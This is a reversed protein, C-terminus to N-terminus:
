SVDYVGLAALTIVSSIDSDVKWQKKKSCASDVQVEREVEGLATSMDSRSGRAVTLGAYRRFPDSWDHPGQRLRLDM